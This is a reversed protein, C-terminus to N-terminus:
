APTGSWAPPRPTWPWSPSGPSRRWWRPSTVGARHRGPLAGGRQGAGAGAAPAGADADLDLVLEGGGGAAAPGAQLQEALRRAEDQFRHFGLQQFLPVLRGVDPARVRATELEFPFDADRRLTVLTRSLPLHDRARELAERRKGKIQDLGDLIGDVSGFQQVLQVATKPGIGEVGPVNDVSDGILALTDVVQAPTIGKHELLTAVDTTTDTHVDFMSVRPGLLQELDKDKSVLRVELDARQPDDLIRQTVTAIVDDAELLPDGLVPIHFGALVELVRPVQVKLDDPTARRTGKYEPYLADRFTEGPTDMAAVVFDPRCQTLLKFLMATFGYVAHTPEGTPSRLGNRIAYYARFVQAYVDILYLTQKQTEAM